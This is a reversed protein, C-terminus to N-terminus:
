IAELTILVNRENEDIFYDFRVTDGTELALADFDARVEDSIMFVKPDIEEPVGSIQIEIFNNDAQGNYSGSDTLIEAQEEPEEESAPEKGPEEVVPQSGSEEVPGGSVICGTASIAFGFALLLVLIAIVLKHFTTKQSRVNMM